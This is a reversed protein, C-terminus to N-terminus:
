YVWLAFNFIFGIIFPLSDKCFHGFLLAATQAEVLDDSEVFVLILAFYPRKRSEVLCLYRLVYFFCLVLVLHYFRHVL